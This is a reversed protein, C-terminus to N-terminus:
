PAPLATIFRYKKKPEDIEASRRRKNPSCLPDGVAAASYEAAQISKRVPDLQSATQGLKNPIEIDTGHHILLDVMGRSIKPQFAAARHLATFGRADRRNPDLGLRLLEEVLDLRNQEAAVHLLGGDLFHDQYIDAGLERHLRTITLLPNVRSRRCVFDMLPTRSDIATLGIDAGAKVLHALIDAEDIDPIAPNNKKLLVHLPTNGGNTQANPNAGRQLLNTVKEVNGRAIAHHLQTRGLKDRCDVPFGHDLLLYLKKDNDTADRLLRTELSPDNKMEDYAGCELLVQLLSIDDNNFLVDRLIIKAMGLEMKGGRETLLCILAQDNSSIKGQRGRAPSRGNLGLNRAIVERLAPGWHCFGAEDYLMRNPDAGADLAHRATGPRSNSVGWFFANHDGYFADYKYLCANLLSYTRRCLQAFANLDRISNVKEAILWIVEKSLVTFPM